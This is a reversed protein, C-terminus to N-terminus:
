GDVLIRRRRIKNGGEGVPSPEGSRLKQVCPYLMEFCLSLIASYEDCFAKGQFPLPVAFATSSYYGLNEIAYNRHLEEDTL